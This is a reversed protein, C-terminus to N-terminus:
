KKYFIGGHNEHNSHSLFCLEKKCIASTLNDLKNITENGLLYLDDIGKQSLAYAFRGSAKGVYTSPTKILKNGKKNYGLFLIVFGMSENLEKLLLEKNVISTSFDIDEEFVIASNYKNEKLHKWLSYHSLLSALEKKNDQTQDKKKYVYDYVDLFSKSDIDVGKWINANIGISKLKDSIKNQSKNISIIWVSNFIDDTIKQLQSVPIKKRNKVHEQTLHKMHTSYCVENWNKYLKNLVNMTKNPITIEVNYLMSKKLPFIDSKKFTDISSASDITHIDIYEVGNEVRDIYYFVDIFPWSFKWPPLISKESLTYLKIVEDVIVSQKEVGMGVEEFEKKLTLLKQYDKYSVAVDVDDDWPILGGHRILGLLNGYIYIYEIGHKKFINNMNDIMRLLISKYSENNKDKEEWVNKFPQQIYTGFFPKRFTFLVILAVIAILSFFLILIYLVPKSKIM